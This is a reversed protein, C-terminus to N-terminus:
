RRHLILVVLLILFFPRLQKRIRSIRIYIANKSLGTASCLEEIPIDDICYAKILWYDQPSLHEQLISMIDNSTMEPPTFPLVSKNIDVNRQDRFHTRRYNQCRKNAADYLWAVPVPHNRIDKDMAVLFVDQVIDRADEPSIRLNALKYLVMKYLREYYQEYLDAAWKLDNSAM